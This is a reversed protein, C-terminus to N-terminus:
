LVGAQKIAAALRTRAAPSGGDALTYVPDATNQRALEVLAAALRAAVLPAAFSTGSWVAFGGRFDDPDLTERRRGLRSGPLSGAAMPQESGNLDVPYTSIVDAGDAWATVWPGDNSFMAKAGNPDLAGVSIVPPAGPPAQAAALAAPFCPRVTSDNGASAVVGVGSGTLRHILKAVHGTYAIDAPKEDYYGLSLSLLDVVTAGSGSGSGTGTGSGTGAAAAAVQAGLVALALLLTSEHVIGDTHMVRIMLVRAEPAAQRVVGAIFTGHGIHTDLLGVSPGAEDRVDWYGALVPLDLGSADRVWQEDAHIAAQLVDDCGLFPDPGVDPAGLWPHRRAGTDLVAVVPRRVVPLSGPEGRGPAPSLVKVPIRSDANFLAGAAQQVDADPSHGESAPDGLVAAACLLHDLGIRSALVVGPGVTAAKSPGGPAQVAAAAPPRNSDSGGSSTDEGNPGNARRGGNGGNGGNGAGAGGEDGSAGMRRDAAHLAQLAVWADVAVPAAGERVRLVAARPLDRLDQVWPPLMPLSQEIPAPAQLCLGVPELARDIAALAAPDRLLDDPVLLTAARYATASPPRVGPALVAHAPRLIRGGHREVAAADPM